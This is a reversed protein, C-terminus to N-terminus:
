IGLINKPSLEVGQLNGILGNEIKAFTEKTYDLVLGSFYGAGVLLFALVAMTIARVPMIMPKNIKSKYEFLTELDVIRSGEFIEFGIKEEKGLADIQDEKLDSIEIAKKTSIYKKGNLFIENAM